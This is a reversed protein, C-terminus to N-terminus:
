RSRYAVRLYFMRGRPSVPFARDTAFPREGTVNRIGGALTTAEGAAYSVNVNHLWTADMFVADGYLTKATEIEVFSLLM